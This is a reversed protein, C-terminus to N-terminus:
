GTATLQTSSVFTTTLATAGLFVQASSLFNAGTVTLLFSGTSISAPNTGILTPTLNMLTVASSASKSSDAASTATVTVTNPSPLSSPATYTGNSAITGLASSGGASGNVSWTVSTNSNGSVNATFQFSSAARINATT